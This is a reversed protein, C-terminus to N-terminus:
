AQLQINSAVSKFVISFHFCQHCSPQYSLLRIGTLIVDWSLVFAITFHFLLDTAIQTSCKVFYM